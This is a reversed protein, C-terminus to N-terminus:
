MRWPVHCGIFVWTSFLNGLFPYVKCCIVYVLDDLKNVFLKKFRKNCCLLRRIENVDSTSFHIPIGVFTHNAMVPINKQWSYFLAEYHYYHNWNSTEVSKHITFEYPINYDAYMYEKRFEPMQVVLSMDEIFRPNREFRSGRKNVATRLKKLFSKRNKVLYNQQNMYNTLKVNKSDERRGLNHNRSKEQISVRMRHVASHIIDSHKNFSFKELSAVSLDSMPTRSVGSSSPTNIPNFRSCIQFEPVEVHTVDYFSKHIKPQKLNKVNKPKSKKKLSIEFGNKVLNVKKGLNLRTGRYRILSHHKPDEVTRKELQKTRKERRRYRRRRGRSTNKKRREPETSVEPNENDANQEGEVPSQEPNVGSELDRPSNQSKESVKESQENVQQNVSQPKPSVDTSETSYYSDFQPQKTSKQMNNVVEQVNRTKSLKKLKKRNSWGLLHIPMGPDFQPDLSERYEMLDLFNGLKEKMEDEKSISCKLGRHARMVEIMDCIDNSIDNSTEICKNMTPPPTIQIYQSLEDQLPVKLFPKWQLPDELDYLICSPHHNQINGWLQKNNFVTEISSYPLHVLTEFPIILDQKPNLQKVTKAFQQKRQPNDLLTKSLNDRLSSTDFNVEDHKHLLADLDVKQDPVYDNGYMEYKTLGHVNKNPVQLQQLNSSPEFTINKYNDLIPGSTVNLDEYCDSDQKSVRWRKPLHWIKKNGTEWFSVTSDSHRTMVWCHEVTGNKITGKCVYADFNIGLLCSCLLVARDHLGGKRTTLFRSPTQWNDIKRLEGVTDISDEKLAFNSIWHMMTGPRSLQSPIQIPTVFCSLIIVETPSIEMKLANNTTTTLFRRQPFNSLTQDKYMKQWTEFEKDWRRALDRYTDSKVQRKQDNPVTLGQPMPPLIYMEFTITPKSGRHPVTYGTLTLTDRYVPTLHEVNVDNSFGSYLVPEGVEHGDEDDLGQKSGENYIGDVLSRRTEIGNLFLKSLPVEVGGLFETSTDDGDWVEMVVPGKSLLDVPLCNMILFINKTEEEDVLHIPFYMNHNYVPSTTCELTPTCNVIGDWRVKVMPDSSNTDTNTSPLSECRVLRIVLYRYSKDLHTLLSSGSIPQAPRKKNEYFHKLGASSMYCVINGQITGSQMQDAGKALKKVAGRVLPYDRVSRLSMVCTGLLTTTRRWFKKNTICYVKVQFYSIKMHRITGRYNFVGASPWYDDNSVGAWKSDWGKGIERIVSVKINKPSNKLHEPLHPSPTFSWNEFVFMFDFIEELLMVVNLKHLPIKRESDETIVTNGESEKTVDPVPMDLALTLNSKNEIVDQFTLFRTAHLTNLSLRHKKWLDIKVFYDKLDGYSIEMKLKNCIFIPNGLTLREGPRYRSQANPNIRGIEIYYFYNQPVSELNHASTIYFVGNWHRPLCEFNYLTQNVEQGYHRVYQLLFLEEKYDNDSLSEKSTSHESEFESEEQETNENSDIQRPRGDESDSHKRVRRKTYDNDFLDVARNEREEDPTEQSEVYSSEQSEEYYLNESSSEQLEWVEVKGM